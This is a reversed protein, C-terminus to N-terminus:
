FLIFVALELKMFIVFNNTVFNKSFVNPACKLYFRLVKIQLKEQVLESGTNLIKLANLSRFIELAFGSMHFLCSYGLRGM